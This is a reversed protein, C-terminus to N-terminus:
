WRLHPIRRANDLESRLEKERALSKALAEETTALVSIMKDLQEKYEDRTEMLYLMEVVETSLEDVEYGYEDVAVRRPPSGTYVFDSSGRPTAEPQMPRSQYPNPIPGGKGQTLTRFKGACQEWKEIVSMGINVIFKQVLESIIPSFNPYAQILYGPFYVDSKIYEPSKPTNPGTTGEVHLILTAGGYARDWLAAQVFHM